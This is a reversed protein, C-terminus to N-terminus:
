VWDAIRKARHISLMRNESIAKSEYQKSTNKNKYWVLPAHQMMFENLDSVQCERGTNILLISNSNSFTLVVNRPYSFLFYKLWM